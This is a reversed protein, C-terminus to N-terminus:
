YYANIIVVKFIVKEINLNKQERLNWIKLYQGIMVFWVDIYLNNIWSEASTYFEIEWFHGKHREM